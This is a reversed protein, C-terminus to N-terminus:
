PASTRRDARHRIPERGRHHDERDDRPQRATGPLCRGDRARDRRGDRAPIAREPRPAKRPADCPAHDQASRVRAVREVPHCRRRHPLDDRTLSRCRRADLHRQGGLRRVPRGGARGRSGAASPVRRHRLQLGEAAARGHPARAGHRHRDLSGAAAHAHRRREARVGHVRQELNRDGSRHRHRPRLLNGLM